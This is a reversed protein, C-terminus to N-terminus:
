RGRLRTVTGSRADVIWADGRGVAISTPFGPIRSLTRIAGNAPDIERVTGNGTDLM